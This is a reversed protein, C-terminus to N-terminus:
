KKSGGGVALGSDASHVLISSVLPPILANKRGSKSPFISFLRGPDFVAATPVRILM